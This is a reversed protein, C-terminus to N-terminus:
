KRISALQMAHRSQFLHGQVDPLHAVFQSSWTLVESAALEEVLVSKNM